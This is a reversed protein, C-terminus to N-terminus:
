TVSELFTGISENLQDYEILFADHGHISRIESYRAGPMKGAIDKQEGTPYLVDSDIGICLARSRISGLVDAVTGRGRAVDHRDMAETITMYCNADFRRVLKEGQYRLYSEIQFEEKSGAGDPEQLKRGFREEFSARSRYSIMAIMRALGLGRVPQEDYEGNLWGPDNTIAARAAQNLGICWSSHQAATGIPIISAVLQPYMIAWELVQMGGLSGGAVAVLHRIGLRSLLAHQVRVMDRVTIPPFSSRYPRGTTPNLATPGTTGYCSGLINSCIVCYRDTDFAKGPGILGNWWGEAGNRRAAPDVDAAHANGTLAHCVLIGNTGDDNLKGYTEYAVDVAQLTGGLDLNFPDARDFVRVSGSRVDVSKTRVASPNVVSGTVARNEERSQANM